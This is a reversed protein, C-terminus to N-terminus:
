YLFCFPSVLRTAVTSHDDHHGPFITEVVMASMGSSMHEDAAEGGDAAAARLAQQFDVAGVVTLRALDNEYTRVAPLFTETDGLDAVAELVAKESSFPTSPQNYSSSAASPPSPSRKPPGLPLKALSVDPPKLPFSSPRSLHILFSHTPAFAM